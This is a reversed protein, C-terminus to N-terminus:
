KIVAAEQTETVTKTVVARTGQRARRRRYAASWKRVLERPVDHHRYHAARACDGTLIGNGDHLTFDDPQAETFDAKWQRELEAKEEATLQGMRWLTSRETDYSPRPGDWEFEYFAAPRRGHSGWQRMIEDRHETWAQVLEERSSFLSGTPNPGLWLEMAQGASLGKGAITRVQHAIRKTRQVSGGRKPPRLVWGLEVAATLATIKGAEVAALLATEGQDKLRQVIYAKSTGHLAMPESIIRSSIPASQNVEPEVILAVCQHPQKPGSFIV